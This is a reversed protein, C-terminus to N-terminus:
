RRQKPSSSILTSLRLSTKSLRTRIKLSKAGEIALADTAEIETENRYDDRPRAVIGSINELVSEWPKTSIEVEVATKGSIGSRDLADRIATLRIPESQSSMSIGLLDKAMRDVAM